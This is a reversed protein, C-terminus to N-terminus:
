AFPHPIHAKIYPNSLIYNRVESKHRLNRRQLAPPTDLYIFEVCGKLSLIAQVARIDFGRANLEDTTLPIGNNYEIQMKKGIHFTAQSNVAHFFQLEQLDDNSVEQVPHM